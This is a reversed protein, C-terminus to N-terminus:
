AGQEGAELKESNGPSGAQVQSARRRLWLAGGPNELMAPLEEEIVEPRCRALFHHFLLVEFADNFLLFAHVLYCENWARGEEIWHRLYEFPWFIDHVHVVVGPCLVPLVSTFLFHVDSAAKLVHSSDIFLVDNAELAEFRELPVCQVPAEVIEIADSPSLRSRLLEPYPEIATVELRGDLFRESTDLALATSWGSGVEVYRRPRLECLMAQLMMADGIGYNPNDPDFRSGAKRGAPLPNQRAFAALARFRAVQADEALDVGPLSRRPAFLRDADRDVEALDPVPSYFHGPPYWTLFREVSGPVSGLRCLARRAEELQSRAAALEEQLRVVEESRRLSRLAKDVPEIGGLLLRLRRRRDEIPTVQEEL